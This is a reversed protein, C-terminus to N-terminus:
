TKKNLIIYLIYVPIYLLILYILKVDTTKLLVYLYILTTFIAIIFAFVNYLQPIVSFFLHNILLFVMIKAFKNYNLIQSVLLFNAPITIFGILGFYYIDM